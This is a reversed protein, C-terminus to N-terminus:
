LGKLPAEGETELNPDAKPYVYIPMPSQRQQARRRLAQNVLEQWPDPFGRLYALPLTVKSQHQHTM